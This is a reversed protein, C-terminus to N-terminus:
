GRQFLLSPRVSGRAEVAELVEADNEWARRYRGKNGHNSQANEEAKQSFFSGHRGDL